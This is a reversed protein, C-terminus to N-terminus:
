LKVEQIMRLLEPNQELFLKLKKLLIEDTDVKVVVWETSNWWFREDKALQINPVPVEVCRAPILYVGVELPSLDAETQGQYFGDRDYQYVIKM